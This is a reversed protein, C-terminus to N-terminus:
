GKEGERIMWEVLLRMVEVDQRCYAVLAEKIRNKETLSTEPDRLKLYATQAGGGDAVELGEYSAKKGLIAPAVNKLSFGDGFGPDYVAARLIPLPDVLRERISELKERYKPFAKALNGLVGSEFQKFYAVVSGKAPINAALHRAMAERPDDSAIDLFDAETPNTAVSKWISCALQFPIQAYPGTGKVKPVPYSMTEFDLFTLPWKWEEMGDRLGQRDVFRRGSIHAKIARRAIEHLDEGALAPLKVIGRGYYDWPDLKPIDFISPDPVDKWCHDKFACPYPDDCHAGIAREPEQKSAIMKAIALIEKKVEPLIANVEKTVDTEEFLNSLDPYRCERSLHKLYARHIEIGNEECIIKQVALDRLHAEKVEVSMKVEILDWKGRPTKRLIDARFFFDKWQFAAEFIAKAGANMAAKTQELYAAYDYYSAEILVGGPYDKQALRGVETGLKLNKERGADPPAALDPHYVELYVMKPCQMGSMLRSKSLVKKSM